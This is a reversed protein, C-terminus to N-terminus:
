FRLAAGGSFSLSVACCPIGPGATSAPRASVPRPLPQACRSAAAPHVAHPPLSIQQVHYLCLVAGSTSRRHCSSLRCACCLCVATHFRQQHESQGILHLSPHRAPRRLLREAEGERRDAPGSFDAVRDTRRQSARDAARGDAPQSPHATRAAAERGCREPAAQQALSQQRHQCSQRSDLLKKVIAQLTAADLVSLQQSTAAISDASDAVTLVSQSHLLACGDIHTQQLLSPSPGPQQQANVSGNKLLWPQSVSPVRLYTLLAPLVAARLVVADSLSPLTSPLYLSPFLSPFVVALSTNLISSLEMACEANVVGVASSPSASVSLTSLHSPPSTSAAAPFFQVEAKCPLVADRSTAYALPYSNAMHPISTGVSPLSLVPHQLASPHFADMILEARAHIALLYGVNFMLAAPWREPSGHQALSEAVLRYPLTALDSLSVTTVLLQQGASFGGQTMLQEFSDLKTDPHPLLLLCWPPEPKSSDPPSVTPRFWRTLSSLLVSTPTTSSSLVLVGSTGYHDMCRRLRESAAPQVAPIAAPSSPSNSSLPPRQPHILSRLLQPFSLQLLLAALLVCALLAAWRVVSHIGLVAVHSSASSARETLAARGDEDGGRAPSLQQQQLTEYRYSRHSRM